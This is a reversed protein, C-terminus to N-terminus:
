KWGGPHDNKTYRGHPLTGIREALSPGDDAGSGIELGEDRARKFDNNLTEIGDALLTKAKNYIGKLGM